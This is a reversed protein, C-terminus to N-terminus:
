VPNKNLTLHFTSGRDVESKVQIKGNNKEIFEKCLILGLGTGAEGNTGSKSFSKDIRFLKDVEENSMGIGTDSIILEIYKKNKICSITIKGNEPTFKVANTLLNRIVTSIM